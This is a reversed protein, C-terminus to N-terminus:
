SANADRWSRLGMCCGRQALMAALIALLKELPPKACCAMVDFCEQDPPFRLFIM